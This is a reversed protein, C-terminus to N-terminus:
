HNLLEVEDNQITIINEQRAKGILRLAMKENVDFHEKIGKILRNQSIPSKNAEKFVLCIVEQLEEVNDHLKKRHIYRYFLLAIGVLFVIAAILMTPNM